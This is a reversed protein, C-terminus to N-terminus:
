MSRLWSRALGLTERLTETTLRLGYVSPVWAVAGPWPDRTFATPAAIVTFGQSQFDLVARPMHLAATVLVITKGPGMQRAVFQANELTTRSQPEARVEQTVGFEDKMARQMLLALPTGRNNPNGGSMIVPLGTQKALLAGYRVRDLTNVQMTDAGFEPAYPRRGGSLVVIADAKPVVDGRKIAPHRSEVLDAWALGVAPTAAFWMLVLMAWFLCFAVKAFRKRLLWALALL